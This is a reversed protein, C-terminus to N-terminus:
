SLSRLGYCAGRSIRLTGYRRMTPPKGTFALELYDMGAAWHNIRHIAPNQLHQQFRAYKGLDHLLGAVEAEKEAGFAAATARALAAVNRLHDALPQWAQEPLCNDGEGLATHAYFKTGM